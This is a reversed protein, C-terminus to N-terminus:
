NHNNKYFEIANFIYEEVEEDKIDKPIIKRVKRFDLKHSQTVTVRLQLLQSEIFTKKEEYSKLEKDNINNRIAKVMKENIKIDKLYDLIIRQVDPDLFALEYALRISIKKQDILDKADDILENLKLYINIMKRTLGHEEGIKDGSLKSYGNSLAVGQHREADMKVKISYALQMPKYDTRQRHILNDDICILEKEEQSINNKLIYPVEINLEKAVDVRNHGSLIMLKDDKKVCIVPTFIGNLKISEKLRERDEGHHLDLRLKEDEYPIFMDVSATLIENEPEKNLERVITKTLNDESPEEDLMSVFDTQQDMFKNKRAM